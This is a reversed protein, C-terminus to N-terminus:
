GLYRVLLPSAWRMGIKSLQEVREASLAAARSRQNNVWAVLRFQLEGGDKSPTRYRKLSTRLTEPPPM